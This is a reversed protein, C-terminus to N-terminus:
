DGSEEKDKDKDADGADEPAAEAGADEAEETATMVTPAAITAITFDRDTIILEVGPPLVLASAHVSDGIELGSLDVEFGDPIQDATCFVEIAHRVVNLVGGFKIGPSEEENLFHVPVEVTIKRDASYRMFDVHIPVDTVPHFQADRPLVRHKTGGIDVDLLHIFFGSKGLHRELIRREVTISVPEQKNGYIIAPIRGNRRAERATGKGSRLRPEAVLTIIDSM